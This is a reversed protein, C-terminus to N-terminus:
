LIDRLMHRSVTTVAGRVYAGEPQKDSRGYRMLDARMGRPASGDGDEAMSLACDIAERKTLCVSQSESLCGPLHWEAIWVRRRLARAQVNNPNVYRQDALMELADSFTLKAM